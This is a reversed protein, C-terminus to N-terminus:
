SRRDRRGRPSRVGEDADIPDLYPADTTTLVLNRALPLQHSSSELLHMLYGATNPFVVIDGVEVGDPFSLRRWTLLEREICYAGVLYAEIPGTPRTTASAQPRILLPDVLFDDSGSRCQTRNMEVGILWIGDGRQKRFAVRAATMGCGDLLARGPECRLHLGSQRIAEALSRRRGRVVVEGGLVQDLWAGHVPEQHFPYVNDLGHGEFTIPAREGLRGRRHESWFRGWEAASDVYSMPIGGGIDLFGPTHGHDRLGDVLDLAAAAAAVRDGAAYGDIHFHVGAVSLAGGGRGAVAIADQVSLGFRTPPRGALIPALRLAVTAARGSREAAGALQEYEDENDIVVTVGHAVCSELLAASKVAATVIVDAAPVGRALVQRLEPESAVDVGLGLRMAQDVLALCKNAKRAFFIKLDVGHGSGVDLLEAANRRLPRPDLVNLPSGHLELWDRLLDPRRCLELQWAELRGTLPVVGACGSRPDAAIV